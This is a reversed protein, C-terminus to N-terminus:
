AIKRTAELSSELANALVERITEGIEGSKQCTKAFGYRLLKSTKAPARSSQWREFTLAL